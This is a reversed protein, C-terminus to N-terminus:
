VLFDGTTVHFTMPDIDRSPLDHTKSSPSDKVDVDVIPSLLRSSSIRRMFISERDVELM